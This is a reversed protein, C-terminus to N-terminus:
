YAGRLGPGGDPVNSFILQNPSKSRTRFVEVASLVLLGPESSTRDIVASLKVFGM